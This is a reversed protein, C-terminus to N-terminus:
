YISKPGDCRGIALQRIMLYYASAFTWHIQTLVLILNLEYFHRSFCSIHIQLNLLSLNSLSYHYVLVKENTKVTYM